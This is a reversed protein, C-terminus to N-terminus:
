APAACNRRFARELSPDLVCEYGELRAILAGEEDTLDIDTRASAETVRRVLALARAGGPPFPRYQRYRALLCPLNAVGRHEQSWLILLQFAGDLVLPDALWR